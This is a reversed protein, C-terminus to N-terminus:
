AVTNALGRYVTQRSLRLVRGIEAVSKGQAQLAQIAQITEDNL